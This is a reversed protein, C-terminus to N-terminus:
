EGGMRRGSSIISEEPDNLSDLSDTPTLEERDTKGAEDGGEYHKDHVMKWDDLMDDRGDTLDQYASSVDSDGYSLVSTPHKPDDACTSLPFDIGTRVASLPEDYDHGIHDSKGVAKEDNIDKVLRRIQELPGMDIPAPRMGFGGTGMGVRSMDTMRNPHPTGAGSWSWGSPTNAGSQMMFDSESESMLYHLPPLPEPNFVSLPNRPTLSLDDRTSPFTPLPSTRPAFHHQVMEDKLRAIERNAVSGDVSMYTLWTATNDTM